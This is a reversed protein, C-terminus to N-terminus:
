FDNEEVDVRITPTKDSSYQGEPFYTVKVVQMIRSADWAIRDGERPVFVNSIEKDGRWVNHLIVKLSNTM